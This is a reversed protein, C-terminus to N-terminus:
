YQWIFHELQYAIRWGLWISLILLIIFYLIDKISQKM